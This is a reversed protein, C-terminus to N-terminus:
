DLLGDRTLKVNRDIAAAADALGEDGVHLVNRAGVTLWRDAVDGIVTSSFHLLQHILVHFLRVPGLAQSDPLFHDLVIENIAHGIVYDPPGVIPIEDPAVFHSVPPPTWTLFISVGVSAEPPGPQLRLM